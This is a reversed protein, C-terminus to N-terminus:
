EAPPTFVYAGMDPVAGRTLGYGDTAALPLTLSPDGAGIAPSEPRLRYDFIYEERVTYYLPDTDWLCGLFNDDDSGESKLLCRRFYVQSGSLDGHSLDGGNGYVISNSFDAALYPLGSGDDLRNEEKIVEIHAFQLAPGGLASFLYYNAFTCHNFVATGGQLYVLGDAGEAFECGAALVNAHVAEFVLGGSNRLRCNVMTLAPESDAGDGSIAVGQWTNRINTETLRNGKSTATFFVGTWQRSMIDFSIDGVVNGTRDGAMTVPAEPTGESILTGRVILMSKDHFCLTTGAALTLAAGESVVLSDYIQYPRRSDFRTNENLTEGRLRRVDQGSAALVVSSTLGNVTFDLSAEVRVPTDSDNEPLTAAVLVFISDNSRIEVDSFERGTMGDVNLRFCDAAPGSIRINSISMGKSHPNHVLMRHTPAAEDTFIIGLDLTDTSFVPQDSPSTSIGDEICGTFTAGLVAIVILSLIHLSKMLMYVCFKGFFQGAGARFDGGEYPHEGPADAGGRLM